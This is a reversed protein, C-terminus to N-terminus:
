THQGRNVSVICTVKIGKAKIHLTASSIEWLVHGTDCSCVHIGKITQVVTEHKSNLLPKIWMNPADHCKFTYVKEQVAYRLIYYREEEVREGMGERYTSSRTFRTSPSTAGRSMSVDICSSSPMWFTLLFAVETRKTQLFEIFPSLQSASSWCWETGYKSWM